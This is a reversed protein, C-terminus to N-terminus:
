SADQRAARGRRVGVAVAAALLVLLIGLQGWPVGAQTHELTSSAGPASDIGEPAMTVTTNLWGLPWIGPLTSEVAASGGPILEGAAITTSKKGLGFPGAMTVTYPGRARVNGTNKLTFAATASVPAFPNWATGASVSLDSMTLDVRGEGTVRINMRTALRRDVQVTGGNTTDVLSSALGGVYDGPETQDPVNISFHVDARAGPALEIAPTDVTVWAGVTTSPEAAPLLDLAGTSSTIGDAAYIALSLAKAGLNTVVFTDDRSVGPDLEYSFNSRAEDGGPKVSWSLENGTDAQAATPLVALGLIAILITALLVSWRPAPGPPTSVSRHM